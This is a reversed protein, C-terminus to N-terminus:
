VCGRVRRGQVFYSTTVTECKEKLTSFIERYLSLKMEIPTDYGFQASLRSDHNIDTLELPHIVFVYPYKLRHYWNFWTRWYWFGMKISLKSFLMVYSGHFPLRLLPTTSVPIEYIERKSHSWCYIKERDPIYPVQPALAHVSAGYKENEFLSPSSLSQWARILWSVACPFISADYAFCQEELYNVVGGTIAYGPARFGLPPKGSVESIVASCQDIEARQVEPSLRAFSLPHSYTHNALEHGESVMREIIRRKYSVKCDKGILFFTAKINYEKLLDLLRVVGDIYIQDTENDKLVHGYCDLVSNLGDLDVQVMAYHPQESM